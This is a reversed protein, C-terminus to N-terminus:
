TTLAMTIGTLITADSYPQTGNEHEIIASIMDHLITTDTVDIIDDAGVCCCSAVADVYATTNNEVPPAWRNIIARVTHLNHYRQYALLLKALVRIGYTASTFRCFRGDSPNTPDLGEWPDPSPHYDINGPNNNRIGRPIPKILSESSNSM